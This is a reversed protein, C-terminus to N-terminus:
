TQRSPRKALSLSSWECAPKVAGDQLRALELLNSTLTHLRRAQDLVNGLLVAQEAPAIQGGQSLLSSAAGIITTLPTRVDHSIGALLTNRM